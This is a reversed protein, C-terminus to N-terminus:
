SFLQSMPFSVPFISPLLFLPLGLILHNSPMMSEISILKLLSQSITISLSAQCAATRPTVFLQVCSLLQVVVFLQVCPCNLCIIFLWVCFSWFGLQWKQPTPLLFPPSCTGGPCTGELSIPLCVMWAVGRGSGHSQRM